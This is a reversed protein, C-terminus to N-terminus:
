NNEANKNKLRNLSREIYKESPLLSKQIRKAYNISDVIEKQKQEVLEKQKRIQKKQLDIFNMAREVLFWISMEAIAITIIFNWSNHNAWLPYITTGLVFALVAIRDSFTKTLLLGGAIFSFETLWTPCDASGWFNLFFQPLCTVTGIIYFGIKGKNRFLILATFGFLPMGLHIPTTIWPQPSNLAIWIIFVIDLIPLVKPLYDFISIEKEEEM